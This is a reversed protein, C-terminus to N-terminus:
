DTVENQRLREKQNLWEHRLKRDSQLSSHSGRDPLSWGKYRYVARGNILARALVGALIIWIWASAKEGHSAQRDDLRELQGIVIVLLLVVFTLKFMGIIITLWLSRSHIWAQQFNCFLCVAGLLGILPVLLWHWVWNFRQDEFPTSSFMLYCGFPLLVAMLSLLLDAVDYYIVLKQRAGAVLVGIALLAIGLMGIDLIDM